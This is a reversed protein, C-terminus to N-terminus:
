IDLKVNWSYVWTMYSSFCKNLCFLWYTPSLSLQDKKLHFPVVGSPIYVRRYLTKFNQSTRIARWICPTSIPILSLPSSTFETCALDLKLKSRNSPIEAMVKDLQLQLRYLAWTYYLSHLHIKHATSYNPAELVLQGGWQLYCKQCYLAEQIIKLSPIHQVDQLQSLCRESLLKLVSVNWLAYLIEFKNRALANFITHSQTINSRNIWGAPRSTCLFNQHHLTVRQYSQLSWHSSQTSLAPLWILLAPLCRSTHCPFQKFESIYQKESNNM